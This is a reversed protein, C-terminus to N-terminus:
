CGQRGTIRVSVLRREQQLRRRPFAIQDGIGGTDLQCRAIPAAGTLWEEEEIDRVDIGFQRYGNEFGAAFEPDTKKRQSIYKEVDSM